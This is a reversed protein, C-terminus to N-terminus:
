GKILEGLAKEVEKTAQECDYHPSNKMDFQLFGHPFEEFIVM